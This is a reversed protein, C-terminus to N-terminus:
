IMDAVNAGIRNLQATGVMNIGWVDCGIMAMIVGMYASDMTCCHGAGKFDDLMLSLLNVRKQIGITNDSRRGLDKDLKGGFVRVHLKYLKLNGHTVALSHITVGTRIPKPDPGQTIPSCYWGAICSEDFTLWRGFQICKKWRRNFGDEFMTFKHRHRATDDSSSVKKDGYIEDWEEDEEVDWDNNFHLCRYMDEFAYKRMSEM